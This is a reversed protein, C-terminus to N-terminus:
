VSEMSVWRKQVWLQPHTPTAPCAHTAPDARPMCHFTDVALCLTMPSCPTHWSCMTLSCICPGALVNTTAQTTCTMHLYTFPRAKPVVIHQFDCRVPASGHGASTAHAIDGGCPVQICAPERAGHNDTGHDTYARRHGDRCGGIALLLGTAVTRQCFFHHPGDWAQPTYCLHSVAANLPRFSLSVQTARYEFVSCDQFSHQSFLYARLHVSLFSFTCVQMSFHPLGSIRGHWTSCSEFGRCEGSDTTSFILAANM